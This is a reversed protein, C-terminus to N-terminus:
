GGEAAGFRLELNVDLGPEIHPQTCSFDDFRDEVANGVGPEWADKISTAL